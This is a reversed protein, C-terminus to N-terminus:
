GVMLMAVLGEQDEGTKEACAALWDDYLWFIFGASLDSIRDAPKLVYGIFHGEFKEPCLCNRRSGGSTCFISPIVYIISIPKRLGASDGM